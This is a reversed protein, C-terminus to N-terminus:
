FEAMIERFPTFDDEGMASDYGESVAILRVGRERFMERYLGSRLYDRGMRDLTKLLITDVEDAEVMSILEQWGPRAYNAGTQGDDSIHLFPTFGNEVAYKELIMKQNEISLSEDARSDERSLREYLINQKRNM